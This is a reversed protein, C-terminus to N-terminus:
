KKGIYPFRNYNLYITHGCFLMKNLATTLAVEVYVERRKENM